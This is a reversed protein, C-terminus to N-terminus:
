VADLDPCDDWSHSVSHEALETETTYLEECINCKYMESKHKEFHTKLSSKYGFAKNCMVCKYPKEANTHTRMHKLLLVPRAFEKNCIECVKLGRKTIDMAAIAAEDIIPYKSKKVKVKNENKIDSIDEGKEFSIDSKEGSENEFLTDPEMNNESKVGSIDEKMQNVKTFEYMSQDNVMKIKAPCNQNEVVNEVKIETCSPGVCSETKVTDKTESIASIESFNEAFNQSKFHKADSSASNENSQDDVSLKRKDVKRREHRNEGHQTNIHRNLSFKMSFPRCCYDCVFPKEKTHTRMHHKLSSPSGTIEVGCECCKRKKYGSDVGRIKDKDLFNPTLRDREDIESQENEYEDNEFSRYPSQIGPRNELPSVTEHAKVKDIIDMLAQKVLETNSKGEENSGKSIIDVANDAGSENGFRSNSDEEMNEMFSESEGGELKNDPDRITFLVCLEQESKSLHEEPLNGKTMQTKICSKIHTHTNCKQSFKKNCLGCRFPKEGTHIRMHHRLGAMCSLVKKCEKCTRAATKEEESLTKASSRRKGESKIQKPKSDSLWQEQKLQSGWDPLPGVAKAEKNPSPSLDAQLTMNVPKETLDTAYDQSLPLTERKFSSKFSDFGPLQQQQQPYQFGQHGASTDNLNSFVSSFNPLMNGSSSTPQTMSSSSMSPLSSSSNMSYQNQELEGQYNQQTQVIGPHHAYMENPYQGYSMNLGGPHNEYNFHPNYEGLGPPHHPPPAGPYHQNKQHHQSLDMAIEYNSTSVDSSTSLKRSLPASLSESGPTDPGSGVTQGEPGSFEPTGEKSDNKKRCSRLHTNLNSRQAFTKNCLLCSFPKEGTHVRMHTSLSSSYALEKNCIPCIISKQKPSTLPNGPTKAQPSVMNNLFINNQPSIIPTGPTSPHPSQLDTSTSSPSQMVPSELPVGSQFNHSMSDSQNGLHVVSNPQGIESEQRTKSQSYLHSQEHVLSSPMSTTEEQTSGRVGEQPTETKHVQHSEDAVFPMVTKELDGISPAINSNENEEAKIVPVAPFSHDPWSKLDPHAVAPYEPNLGSGGLGEQQMGLVANAIQAPLGDSEPNSSSSKPVDPKVDMAPGPQLNSAVSHPFGPPKEGYNPYVGAQSANFTNFNQISPLSKIPSGSFTQPPPTPYLQPPTRTGLSSMPSRSQYNYMAPQMSAYTEPESKIQHKYLPSNSYGKYDQSPVDFQQATESMHFGYGPSATLPAPSKRSKKTPTKMGTLSNESMSPDLQADSGPTTPTVDKHHKAMHQKMNGKFTFSKDCFECTYPKEGTHIRHHAKLTASSSYTKNCINCVHSGKVKEGSPQKSMDEIDGEEISSQSSPPMPKTVALAAPQQQNVHLPQGQVPQQQLHHISPLPPAWQSSETQSSPLQSPYQQPAQQYPIETYKNDSQSGHPFPSMLQGTEPNQPAPSTYNNFHAQQSLNGDSPQSSSNHALLHSSSVQDSPVKEEKIDATNEVTNDSRSTGSGQIHAQKEGSANVGQNTSASPESVTPHSYYAKNDVHQSTTGTFPAGVAPPVGVAAQVGSAHSIGTAPTMKSQAIDPKSKHHINEIHRTLSFKQSFVQNCLTCIHPSTGTHMKMHNTYYSASFSKKCIDCYKSPHKREGQYEKSRNKQKMVPTDPSPEPLKPAQHMQQPSSGTSMAEPNPCTQPEPRYGPHAGMHTYESGYHPQQMPSMPPPYAGPPYQSMGHGYPDYYVPHNQYFPHQRHQTFDVGQMGYPSMTLDEPKPTTDGSREQASDPTSTHSYNPHPSSQMGPFHSAQNSVLTQMSPLIGQSQTMPSTQMGPEPYEEGTNRIEEFGPLASPSESSNPQGDAPKPGNKPPSKKQRVQSHTLMHRTCNSKFSFARNCIDCHYPKEGTHVRMHTQLAGTSTLKKGCTQCEYLQKDKAPDQSGDGPPLFQGDMEEVARNQYHALNALHASYMNQDYAVAQQGPYPSPPYHELQGPYQPPVPLSYPDGPPQVVPQVQETYELPLSESAPVTGNSHEMQKVLSSNPSSLDSNREISSLPGTNLSFDGRSQREEISASVNETETCKNPLVNENNSFDSSVSAGKFDVNSVEFSDFDTNKNLTKNSDSQFESTNVPKNDKVDNGQSTRENIDVSGITPESFNGSEITVGSVTGVDTGQNKMVDGNECKSDVSQVKSEELAGNPVNETKLDSKEMTIVNENAMSKDLGILNENVNGCTEDAGIVTEKNVMTELDVDTELQKIELFDAEDLDFINGESGEFSSNDIDNVSLYENILEANDFTSISETEEKDVKECNKPNSSFYDESLESKVSTKSGDFDSESSEVKVDFSTEYAVPVKENRIECKLNVSSNERSVRRISSGKTSLNVPCKPELDKKSPDIKHRNQLHTKLNWQKTFAHNCVKCVFPKQGEHVMLHNQLGYPTTLLKGCIKCEFGSNTFSKQIIKRQRYVATKEKDSKKRKQVFTEVAVPNESKRGEKKRRREEVLEKIHIVDKNETKKIKSIPEPDVIEEADYVDKVYAGNLIEKRLEHLRKFSKNERNRLTMCSQTGLTHYGLEDSSSEVGKDSDFDASTCLGFRGGCNDSEVKITTESKEGGFAFHSDYIQPEINSFNRNYDTKFNFFEDTTKKVATNESEVKGFGFQGATNEVKNFKRKKENVLVNKIKVVSSDSSDNIHTNTNDDTEVKVIPIDGDIEDYCNSEFAPKLCPASEDILKNKHKILNGVTDSPQDILGPEQKVQLQYSYLTKGGNVLIIHSIPGSTGSKPSATPPSSVKRSPLGPYPPPDKSFKKLQKALDIVNGACNPILQNLACVKSNPFHKYTLNLHADPTSSNIPVSTKNLADSVSSSHKVSTTKFSPEKIHPIAKTGQSIINSVDVSQSTAFTLGQSESTVITSTKVVSSSLGANITDKECTSWILDDTVTPETQTVHNVTLVNKQEIYEVSDKQVFKKRGYTELSNKSCFQLSPEEQKLDNIKKSDTQKVVGSLGIVRSADTDKEKSKRPKVEVSHDKLETFSTNPSLHRKQCGKLHCTYNWKRSFAHKCIGCVYPKEGTHLRRHINLGESTTLVKDCDPCQYERKKRPRQEMQPDSPM